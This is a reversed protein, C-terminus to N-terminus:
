CWSTHVVQVKVLWDLHDTLRANFTNACGPLGIIIKQILFFLFLFCFFVLQLILDNSRSFWSIAYRSHWILFYIFLCVCLFCPFFLFSTITYKTNVQVQPYMQLCVGLNWMSPARWFIDFNSNKTDIQLEGWLLVNGWLFYASIM